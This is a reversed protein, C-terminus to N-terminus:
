LKSEIIIEAAIRAGIGPLLSCKEYGRAEKFAKMNEPSAGPDMYRGFIVDEQIKRCTLASIEQEFRTMFLKARAMTTRGAVADDPNASGGFLGLATLGGTLAGCMWGTGGFGPFPSMAKVVELDGLGFEEMVALASSRACNGAFFNYEEARRQVRQLVQHKRDVIEAWNLDKRSIGNVLIARFRSEIGSMDWKRDVLEQLQAQLTKENM